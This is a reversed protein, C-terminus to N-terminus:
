ATEPPVRPADPRRRVPLGFPVRETKLHRKLFFKVGILCLVVALVTYGYFFVALVTDAM